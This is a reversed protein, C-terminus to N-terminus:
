LNFDAAGERICQALLTNDIVYHQQFHVWEHIVIQNVYGINLKPQFSDTPQGFMEAGIILGKRFTTGGTNRAGIVFYIDPFVAKPYLKKLANLYQYLSDKNNNIQLSTPRINQYYDLNARVVKSLNKGSEIRMPIFGKLGETGADLYKTQFVKSSFNPTTEDFIKWFLAIDETHIKASDPQNTFNQAIASISTLMFFPILRASLHLRIM